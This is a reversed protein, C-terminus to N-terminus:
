WFSRLLQGLSQIFYLRVNRHKTKRLKFLFNIAKKCDFDIM